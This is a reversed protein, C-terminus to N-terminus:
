LGKSKKFVEWALQMAFSMAKGDRGVVSLYRSFEGGNKVADGWIFHFEKRAAEIQEMRHQMQSENM